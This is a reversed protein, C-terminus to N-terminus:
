TKAVELKPNLTETQNVCDCESSLLQGTAIDLSRAKCACYNCCNIIQV